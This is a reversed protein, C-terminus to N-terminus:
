HTPRKIFVAVLAAGALVLLPWIKWFLAGVAFIAALGLYVMNLTAKGM